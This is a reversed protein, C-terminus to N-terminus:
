TLKNYASGLISRLKPVITPDVAEIYREINAKFNSAQVARWEAAINAVDWTITVKKGIEPRISDYRSKLSQYFNVDQREITTIARQVMEHDAAKQHTHAELFSVHQRDLTYALAGIALDRVYASRDNLLSKAIEIAESDTRAFPLVCRRVILKRTAADKSNNLANPVFPLVKSGLRSIYFYLISEQVAPKTESLLDLLAEIQSHRLQNKNKKSLM